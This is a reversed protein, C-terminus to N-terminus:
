GTGYGAERARVIADARGSVGLKAYIASVTNRVTKNSVYLEGAIDDNSRGAAVMHLVSRERETLDPFPEEEARQAPGSALLTAIRPAMSAGFVMGGGAATLIANHVEAAGSGKLLYGCAGARIASLITDDDENMTLMLIRLGPDRGVLFRTTEIGDLQPMQIDMVVVDPATEGVVHLADRGDAASGVVEVGDLAGLLATLGDRVIQHDDVVVVRITMGPEEAASPRTRRHRGGGSLHDRDHRRARRCARPPQGPRCRVAPRVRHRDRRRRGRRAARRRVRRPLAHRRLRACPPRREHAGRRRDPVGRGRRRRLAARQARSRRDRATRRAPGGAAQDGRGTRPRRAGPTPPRARAATRRRGRVARAPQDGGAAGQGRRPDADVQMRTAELQFVIGSLAPGLGDHLDRRIRRREEERATVLRERSHQVEEALQSTRVATAAQRVLDGLLQEDRVSLRSRVGKAPLVLRGVAAGRYTIPLTRVADPRDGYTTVMQEGNSWDIELSVFRVGFATAVSRAVAALQEGADDTTELTSSLGALADYRNGREGLMRRTVAQSLRQRLPGYLLVAALLVVTVVQAQTLDDDLVLTLLALVAVDAAVLVVIVAAVVITRALLDQISVVEPRVIAVTMAAGPLVMAVVVGVYDTGGIHLVFTAVLQYAVIVVASWVLWRMRDRALGHSQRYRVVVLALAVAFAALMAGLVLPRTTATSGALADISVPDVDIAPPLMRMSRLLEQELPMVLLAAGGCVAVALAVKGVAGWVGPMFRGNPFVLVLAMISVPLFAGFRELFWVAFTMAPWIRDDTVGARIYSQALGDLAWFVGLLGLMWGFIRAERGRLIPASLLGLIVGNLAFPWGPDGAYRIGPGTAPAAVDLAVALAFLAACVIPLVVYARGGTREEVRV